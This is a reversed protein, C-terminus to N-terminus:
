GIGTHPYERRRLEATAELMKRSAAMRAFSRQLREELDLVIEQHALTIDQSRREMQQATQAGCRVSTIQETGSWLEYQRFSDDCANYVRSAIDKAENDNQAYFIETVRIRGRKDVLYFRYLM